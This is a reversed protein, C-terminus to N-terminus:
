KKIKNFFPINMADYGDDDGNVKSFISLCEHYKMLDDYLNRDDINGIHRGHSIKLETMLM